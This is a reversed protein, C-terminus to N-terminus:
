DWGPAVHKAQEYTGPKLYVEFLDFQRERERLKAEIAEREKTKIVEFRVWAIVRNEKLTKLRVTFGAGQADENIQQIAPELVRRRFDQWRPLKGEPVKLWQRLEETRVELVPDEKNAVSELLEYLTVAYKGSLRMMFHT